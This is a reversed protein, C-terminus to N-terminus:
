SAAALRRPGAPRERRAMPSRPNSPPRLSSRGTRWADLIAGAFRAEVRSLAAAGFVIEDALAPEDAAFTGVMEHLALRGHHVDAEVHVEYFRELNPAEGIRRAAALYRSMPTVSCMEFVALHGILAGRLRRQLAFLSVLNDTALTAGPLCDVYHGFTADLGLDTMAAAFLEAHAEGPRGGGYEDVQIEIMASRGPGSLRPIAFTHPDAEKLQYASRQIAFEALHRRGGTEEITRALPPGDWTAIAELAQVPDAPLAQSRPDRGHEARLAEEFRVELARRFGIVELDWEDDDAVGEFGRYHLNYACWLALHLDDDVLPDVARLRSSHEAVDLSRGDALRAVLADSLPGRPCPLRAM